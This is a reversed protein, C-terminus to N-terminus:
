LSDLETDFGKNTKIEHKTFFDHLEQLSGLNEREHYNHIKDEFDIEVTKIKAILIMLSFQFAILKISLNCFGQLSSKMNLSVHFHSRERQM